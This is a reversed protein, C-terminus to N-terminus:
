DSDEDANVESEIITPADKNYDSVLLWVERHSFAQRKDNSICDLLRDADILRGHGKPLINGNLIICDLVDAKGNRYKQELLNYADESIKIVIEM